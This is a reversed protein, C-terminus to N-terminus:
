VWEKEDWPRPEVENYERIFIEIELCWNSSSNVYGAV